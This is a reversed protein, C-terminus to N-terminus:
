RRAMWRVLMWGTLLGIVGGAATWLATDASPIQSGYYAMGAGFTALFAVAPMERVAGRAPAREPATAAPASVEYTPDFAPAPPLDLEEPLGPIDDLPTPAHGLADLPLRYTAPLTESASFGNGAVPLPTRHVLVYGRRRAVM